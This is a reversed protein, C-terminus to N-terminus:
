IKTYLTFYPNAKIKIKCIILWNDLYEDPSRDKERILKFSVKAM